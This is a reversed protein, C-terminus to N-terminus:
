WLECNLLDCALAGNKLRVREHAKLALAKALRPNGSLLSLHYGACRERLLAGFDRYLALLEEEKGVREGYPPNTVLWANWGERLELERADGEELEVHEDLGASSLNERAGDLVEPDLERGRLILKPPLRFQERAQARLAELGASDHDAWRECAFRERFLGPAAEAALLAAEVLLTGSGCFPDVLPSRRDWGSFMLVAAATTEALPARGQFRRWGRRHLSHGSTDVQLTCRDKFLHVQIRLDPDDKDVSPRQGTRARVQDVVADKIRQEIFLTHELRSETSRAAVYLSGEPEIFRSWDQAQVGRYLADPDPAPFRDLRQLVRVATRLWLNARWADARTGEFYVGGVQREVKGLRLARAEAHLVPEVGPACPVFYIEKPAAM